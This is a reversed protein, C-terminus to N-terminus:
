KKYKSEWDNRWGIRPEDSMDYFYGLAFEPDLHVTDFKIERKSVDDYCNQGANIYESENIVDDGTQIKHRIQRNSNQHATKWIRMASSEIDNLDVRDVDGDKRYQSIANCAGLKLTYIDRLIDIESNGIHEIDILQKVFTHKCIDDPMQPNISRDISLTRDFSRNFSRKTKKLMEQVTLKTKERRCVAVFHSDKFEALLSAYVVDIKSEDINKIYELADKISQIISYDKFQEIEFRQYFKRRNPKSLAKLKNMADLIENSSTHKILEDLDNDIVELEIESDKFRLINNYFNNTEFAKNTWIKFKRDNFFQADKSLSFQTLWNDITHWIDNDRVTLNSWSGNSNQIANKAQILYRIGKSDIYLLDDDTEYELSSGKEMKLAMYLFAYFQFDFGAQTPDASTKNLFEQHENNYETMNVQSKINLVPFM